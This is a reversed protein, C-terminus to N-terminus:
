RIDDGYNSEMIISEAVQYDIDIGSTNKIHNCVILTINKITPLELQERIDHDKIVVAKNENQSISKFKVVIQPYHKRYYSSIAQKVHPNNALLRLFGIVNEPYLSVTHSLMSIIDNLDTYESTDKTIFLTASENVVFESGNDSHIWYGKHHEENHALRNFSGAYFVHKKHIPTHIHGALVKDCMDFDKISYTDTIFQNYGSFDFEGHVLAYDIRKLNNVRMLEKVKNIIERKSKYPLNDPIYLIDINLHEIHEIHITNVWGYNIPIESKIYIRDLLKLQNRDHSYTGQLIRLAVNYKACEKLLDVFVEIIQSASQDNMSVSTDFMDGSIVFLDVDKIRPFLYRHLGSITDASPVRSHHLHWDATHLVRVGM